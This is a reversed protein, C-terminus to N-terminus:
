ALNVFFISQVWNYQDASMGLEILINSKEGVHLVKVSAANNYDIQRIMSMLGIISVIRWDVKRIISKEEAFSFQALFAARDIAAAQVVPDDAHKPSDHSRHESPAPSSMKLPLTLVCLVYFLVNCSLM